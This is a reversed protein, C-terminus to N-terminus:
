IPSGGPPRDIILVLRLFWPCREQYRMRIFRGFEYHSSSEARKIGTDGRFLDAKFCELEQQMIVELSGTNAQRDAEEFIAHKGLLLAFYHQTLRRMQRVGFSGMVAKVADNNTGEPSEEDSDSDGDCVAAAGKKRNSIISLSIDELPWTSTEILMM